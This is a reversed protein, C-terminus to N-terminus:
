NTKRLLTINFFLPTKPSFADKRSKDSCYFLEKSQSEDVEKKVRHM